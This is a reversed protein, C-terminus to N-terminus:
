NQGIEGSRENTKEARLEKQKDLFNTKQKTETGYLHLLLVVDAAFEQPNNKAMSLVINIQEPTARMPKPNESMALILNIWDTRNKIM